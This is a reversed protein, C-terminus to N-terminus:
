EARAQVSEIIRDLADGFAAKEEENLCDFLDVNWKRAIPMIKRYLERGDVTLSILVVRGDEESAERQVLGQNILAEAARCAFRSV